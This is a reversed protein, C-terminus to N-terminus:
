ATGLQRRAEAVVEERSWSPHEFITEVLIRMTRESPALGGACLDGFCEDGMEEIRMEAIGADLSALARDRKYDSIMSQPIQIPGTM